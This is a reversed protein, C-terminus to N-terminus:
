KPKRSFTKLYEEFIKGKSSVHRYQISVLINKFNKHIIEIFFAEM